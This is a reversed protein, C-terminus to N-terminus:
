PQTLVMAATNGGFGFSNVLVNSVAALQESATLVTLAGRQVPHRLGATGPVTGTELTRVAAATAPFGSCHMLHGVAGKHSSVTTGPWAGDRALQDMASLEADDGQFTGAAHAHIHDARPSGALHLAESMVATASGADSAAAESGAIRCALGGVAARPVAGRRRADAARELLIAGSGEGLTTGRRDRDFPRAVDPSLAKVVEMSAVSYEGATWGGLVIATDALGARLWRGGLAIGFLVSACAHSVFIPEAADRVASALPDAGLFSLRRPTVQDLAPTQGVLVVVARPPMATHGADALAEALARRVLWPQREPDDPQASPGPAAAILPGVAPTAEELASAGSVLEAWYREVGCGFATVLGMGTVVLGTEGLYEPM